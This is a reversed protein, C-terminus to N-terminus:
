TRLPLTRRNIRYPKGWKRYPPEWKHKLQLAIKKPASRMAGIDRLTCKYVNGDVCRGDVSSRRPETRGFIPCTPWLPHRFGTVRKQPMWLLKRTLRQADSKWSARCWKKRLPVVVHIQQIISDCRKLCHRRFVRLDHDESAHNHSCPIVVRGRLLPDPFVQRSEHRLKRRTNKLQMSTTSCGGYSLVWRTRSSSAVDRARKVVCAAYAPFRATARATDWDRRIAFGHVHSM